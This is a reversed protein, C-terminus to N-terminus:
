WPWASVKRMEAPEPSAVKQDSMSRQHSSLVDDLVRQDSGVIINLAHAAGELRMTPLDSSDDELWDHAVHPEDRGCWAEELLQATHRLSLPAYQEDKSSTM